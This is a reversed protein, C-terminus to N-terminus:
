DIILEKLRAYFVELIKAFCLFNKSFSKLLSFLFLM